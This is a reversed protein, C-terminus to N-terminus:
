ALQAVLPECGLEVVTRLVGLAHNVSQNQSLRCDRERCMCTYVTGSADIRTGTVHCLGYDCLFRCYRLVYNRGSLVENAHGLVPDTSHRLDSDVDSAVARFQDFLMAPSAEMRAPSTLSAFSHIEVREFFKANVSRDHCFAILERLEARNFKTLVTNLEFRLGSMELMEIVNAISQSPLPGATPRSKPQRLSDVGLRIKTIGADRLADLKVRSLLWGNTVLTRQRAYRATRSVINSLGPHLLAEGGTYTIADLPTGISSLVDVVRRVLWDQMAGIAHPQGENHCYFCRLNCDATVALRLRRNAFLTNSM